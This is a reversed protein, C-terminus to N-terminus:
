IWIRIDQRFLRLLILGTGQRAVNHFNRQLGLLKASNGRLRHLVHDPLADAFRLAALHHLFELAALLLDCGSLHRPYVWNGAICRQFNATCFCHQRLTLLHRSFGDRLAVQNLHVDYVYALAFFAARFRDNGTGV